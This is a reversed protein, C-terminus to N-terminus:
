RLEEAPQDLAVRRFVPPKAPLYPAIFAEHFSYGGKFDDISDRDTKGFIGLRILSFVMEGFDECRQVGWYDFVTMAMPGFQKLAHVRIGELLQQATVHAAADRSKKRQKITFDLSERIFHYADRGYRPDRTVIQDLAENFDLKQM